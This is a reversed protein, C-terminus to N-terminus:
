LCILSSSPQASKWTREARAMRRWWGRTLQAKKKQSRHNAGDQGSSAVAGSGHGSSPGSLPVLRVRDVRVTKSAWPMVNPGRM